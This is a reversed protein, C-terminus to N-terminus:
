RGLERFVVQGAGLIPRHEVVLLAADDAREVRLVRQLGPAKARGQHGAVDGPQQVFAGAAPGLGPPRQDVAPAAPLPRQRQV